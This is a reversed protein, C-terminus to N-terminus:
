GSCTVAAVRNIITESVISLTKLNFSFFKQYLLVWRFVVKPFVAKGDPVPCLRRCTKSSRTSHPQPLQLSPGAAGSKNCGKRGPCGGCAAVRLGRGLTYKELARPLLLREVLGAGGSVWHIGLWYKGPVMGATWPEWWNKFREHICM